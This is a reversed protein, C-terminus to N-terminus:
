KWIDTIEESAKEIMTKIEPNRAVVMNFGSAVTNKCAKYGVKYWIVCNTVVGAIFGGVALADKHNTCWNKIREKKSM